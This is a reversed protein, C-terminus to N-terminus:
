GFSFSDDEKSGEKKNNTKKNSESVKGKSKTVKTM